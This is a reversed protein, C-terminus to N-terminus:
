DNTSICGTYSPRKLSPIVNKRITYYAIIREAFLDWVFLDRIKESINVFIWWGTMEIEYRFFTKKVYHQIILILLIPIWCIELYVKGQCVNWSTSSQSNELILVNSTEFHTLCSFTLFKKFHLFKLSNVWAYFALFHIFFHGFIRIIICLNVCKLRPWFQFFSVFQFQNEDIEM